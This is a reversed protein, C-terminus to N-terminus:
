ALTPPGTQPPPPAALGRGIGVATVSPLAIADAIAVPAAPTPARVLDLAAANPAFPCEHNQGDDHQHPDGAKGAMAHDGHMAMPMAAAAVGPCPMISVSEGSPMWGAPVALRLLLALAILAAALLHPRRSGTM